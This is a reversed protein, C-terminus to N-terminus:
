ECSEILPSKEGISPDGGHYFGAGKVTDTVGAFDLQENSVPHHYKWERQFQELFSRPKVRVRSGAPFQEKTLAV